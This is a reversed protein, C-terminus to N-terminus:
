FYTQLHEYVILSQFLTNHLLSDFYLKFPGSPLIFTRLGLSLCKSELYVLLVALCPPPFSAINNNVVTEYCCYIAMSLVLFATM